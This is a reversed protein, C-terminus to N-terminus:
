EARFKLTRADSAIELLGSDLTLTRADILGQTFVTDLSDAGCFARTCALAGISINTGSLSYTGNCTNCDARSSIRTEDLFEIWYRRQDSVVTSSGSAPEISVLRWMRGVLDSPSTPSSGCGSAALAAASILLTAILQTRRV